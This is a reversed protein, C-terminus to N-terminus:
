VRPTEKKLTSLLARFAAPTAALIAQAPDSSETLHITSTRPAIHVCAEGESCHSSKQWPPNM